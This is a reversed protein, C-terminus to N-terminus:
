ARGKLLDMYYKQTEIIREELYKAGDGDSVAEEGIKMCKDLMSIFGAYFARRTERTQTDSVDGKPKVTKWFSEWEQKITPLSM